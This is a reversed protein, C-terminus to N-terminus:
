GKQQARLLKGADSVNRPSREWPSVLWKQGKEGQSDLLGIPCDSWEGERGLTVLAVGVAEPTACTAVLERTRGEGRCAQCRVYGHTVNNAKGTGGCHGCPCLRWLSYRQDPDGVGRFAEWSDAPPTNQPTRATHEKQDGMAAQTVYRATM